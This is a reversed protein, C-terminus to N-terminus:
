YKQAYETAETPYGKVAYREMVTVLALVQQGDVTGVM